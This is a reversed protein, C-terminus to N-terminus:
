PSEVPEVVFNNVEVHLCNDIHYFGNLNPIKNKDM